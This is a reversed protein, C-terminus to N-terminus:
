CIFMDQLDYLNDVEEKTISLYIRTISVSSHNFLASLRVLSSETQGNRRWVERGFTKRFTHTSIRKNRIGAKSAYIKLQKNITRINLPIIVSDPEQSGLKLYSKRITEQLEIPIPIERVKNTKKERLLLVTKNLVMSWTIRSLDSYRLATSIGLRVLLYYLQNDNKNLYKLLRTLENEELHEASKLKTNMTGTKLNLLIKPVLKEDIKVLVKIFLSKSTGKKNFVSGYSEHSIL